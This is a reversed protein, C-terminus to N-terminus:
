FPNHFAQIRLMLNMTEFYLVHVM